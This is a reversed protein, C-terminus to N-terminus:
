GSSRPELGRPPLGCFQGAQGATALPLSFGPNEPTKENEQYEQRESGAGTRATKQAPVTGSETGTKAAIEFDADTVQLYHKQAIAASNGIWTCVVHLPYTAALETQRSARLNHFLKPWPKLGARKVIRMFQTRLNQNSDRYRSIPHVAGPEALEFADAFARQLEPFIPVWREGGDDLHELKPSRVLFRNKEFDIDAWTLNLLESPCRLGGFRCLVFILRWEADPCADLVAAAMERTVHFKRSENAQSPAKVEQFPNEVLLRARVASRFFQKARKVTRGATGDAYREKLWLLWADAEGPTIDRLSITEGFFEVLRTKTALLNIRTRPKIDTRRDIYAALFEGLRSTRKAATLGVAALKGAYNDDLGSVWKAVELDLPINTSAAIVLHEIKTKFERATKMSVKGLRVTKRKGDPAVFLIRKLGGPETGISAM